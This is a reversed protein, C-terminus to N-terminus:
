FVAAAEPRVGASDAREIALQLQPMDTGTMAELLAAEARGAKLAQLRRQCEKLKDHGQQM